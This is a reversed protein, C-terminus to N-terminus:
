AASYKQKIQSITQQMKLIQFKKHLTALAEEAKSLDCLEAALLSNFNFYNFCGNQLINESM